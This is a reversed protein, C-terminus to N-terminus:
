SCESFMEAKDGHSYIYLRHLPRTMAIYLLKVDLPDTSYAEKSGNAIIVVDFELGKVLYSPILVVGGLFEEENGTIIDIDLGFSKLEVKLKKCEKLTKCIIAASKFGESKINRIKEAMDLSIEM